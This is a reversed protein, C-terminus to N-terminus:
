MFVVKVSVRYTIANEILEETDDIDSAHVNVTVM